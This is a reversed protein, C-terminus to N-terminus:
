GLLASPVYTFMGAIGKHAGAGTEDETDPPEEEQGYQTLFLGDGLVCSGSAVVDPVILKGGIYIGRQVASEGRVAHSGTVLVTKGRLQTIGYQFRQSSEAGEEKLTPTKIVWDDGGNWSYSAIRWKKCAADSEVTM